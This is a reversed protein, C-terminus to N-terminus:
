FPNRKYVKCSTLLDLESCTQKKLFLVGLLHATIGALYVVGVWCRGRGAKWWVFLCVFCFFVGRGM